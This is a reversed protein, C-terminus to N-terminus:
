TTFAGVGAGREKQDNHGFRMLVYDGPKLQAAVQDWLGETLFTRSSRGGRARNLVTIKAPGFLKVFPTGWGQLGKAGNNVTSDGILFLTPLRSPPQDAASTGRMLLFAPAALLLPALKM